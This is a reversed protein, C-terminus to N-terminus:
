TIGLVLFTKSENLKINMQWEFDYYEMFYLIWNELGFLGLQIEWERLVFNEPVKM